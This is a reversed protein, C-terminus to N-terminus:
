GNKPIILVKGVTLNATNVLWGRSGDARKVGLANANYLQQWRLKYRNAISAMTEGKAITHKTYGAVKAPAANVLKTVGPNPIILTTGPTLNATNVINGISGDLRTANAVNANYVVAWTVKYKNAISAITEGKAVVHKRYGSATPTAPKSPTPKPAPKSPATPKPKAPVVAVPKSVPAGMFLPPAGLLRLMENVIAVGRSDLSGGSIYQRIAYDAQAPDMGNAIARNIALTAWEDNTAPASSTAVSEVTPTLNVWQGSGGMGVGPDASTDNYVDYSTDAPATTKRQWVMIAIGAGVVAIWVGLPLPGIMKNLAGLKM